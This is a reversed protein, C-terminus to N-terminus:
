QLRLYGCFSTEEDPIKKLMNGDYETPRKEGWFRWGDIDLSQWPFV